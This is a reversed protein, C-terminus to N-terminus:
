ALKQAPSLDGIDEDSWFSPLIKTNLMDAGRAPDLGRREAQLGVSGRTPEGGPTKATKEQETALALAPAPSRAGIVLGVARITDTALDCGAGARALAHPM